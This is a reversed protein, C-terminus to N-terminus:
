SQARGINYNGGDGVAKIQEADENTNLCDVDYSIAVHSSNLRTSKRDRTVWELKARWGEPGPDPLPHAGFVARVLLHELEERGALHRYLSMPAVDLEGALRRMSSRFLTTYPCLM